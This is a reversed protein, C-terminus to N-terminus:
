KIKYADKRHIIRYIGIQRIDLDIDFLVRYDGIRKCYEAYPFLKLKKVDGKFPNIKLDFISNKVSDFHATKSIISLDKKAKFSLRIEFM